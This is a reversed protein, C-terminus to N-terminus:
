VFSRTIVAPAISQLSWIISHKRRLLLPGMSSFIYFYLFKQTFSECPKHENSLYILKIGGNDLVAEAWCPHVPCKYCSTNTNIWQKTSYIRNFLWTFIGHFQMGENQWENTFTRLSEKAGMSNSLTLAAVIRFTLIFFKCAIWIFYLDDVIIAAIQSRTNYM